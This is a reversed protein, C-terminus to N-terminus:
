RLSVIRLVTSLPIGHHQAFQSRTFGSHRYADIMGLRDAVPVRNKYQTNGRNGMGEAYTVM